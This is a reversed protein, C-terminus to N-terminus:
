TVLDLMLMVFVDSHIYPPGILVVKNRHSNEAFMIGTSFECGNTFFQMTLAPQMINPNQMM